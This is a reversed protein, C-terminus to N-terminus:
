PVHQHMLLKNEIKTKTKKNDVKKDKTNIEYM